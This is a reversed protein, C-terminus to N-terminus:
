AASVVHWFANDSPSYVDIARSLWVTYWVLPPRMREPLVARDDMSLTPSILSPM